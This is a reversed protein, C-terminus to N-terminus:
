ALKKVSSRKTLRLNELDVNEILNIGPNKNIELSGFQHQIGFFEAGNVTAWQLLTQLSIEPAHESIVKMEDLISLSWNSAYSDTGICCKANEEIFTKYDPLKNEIYLNANPCFCWYINISYHHAFQIDEKNTFTNHVLLIKNERPLLPLCSQLSGKGTKQFHEISIGIGNFFDIMKGTKSLFLENESESEQNHMSLIFNNKVAAESILQFLETSVSYPAHATVSYPLKKNKLEEKLPLVKNFEKGALQPNVNFVELFTHYYIESTTKTAFSHNKNSIDGVVVIGNKRMEFNANSVATLIEEIISQKQLQKIQSIFGTLGTREVIKGKLYSHELHCHSNIFGPCIIGQYTEPEWSGPEFQSFIELIIGHNSVAIVGNKIPPSTIPFIYDASIYRM